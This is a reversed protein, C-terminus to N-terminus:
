RAPHYTERDRARQTAQPAFIAAFKGLGYARPFKRLYVRSSKAIHVRARSAGKKISPFAEATGDM